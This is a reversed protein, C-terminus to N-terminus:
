VPRGRRHFAPNTLFSVVFIFAEDFFLFNISLASFITSIPTTNVKGMHIVLGVYRCIM